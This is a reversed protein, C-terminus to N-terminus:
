VRFGIHRILGKLGLERLICIYIYVYDLITTEMKQEM